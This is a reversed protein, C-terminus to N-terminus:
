LELFDNAIKQYEETRATERAAAKDEETEEEDDDFLGAYKKCDEADDVAVATMKRRIINARTLYVRLSTDGSPCTCIDAVEIKASLVISRAPIAEMINNVTIPEENHLLETNADGRAVAIGDHLLPVFLDKKKNPGWTARKILPVPSEATAPTTTIRVKYTPTDLAVLSGADDGSTAMYNSIKISIHDNEAEMPPVWEKKGFNCKSWAKSNRLEFGLEKPSTKSLRETLENASEHLIDLVEILLDNNEKLLRIKAAYKSASERETQPVAQMIDKEEFSRFRMEPKDMMLEGNKILEPVKEYPVKGRLAFPISARVNGLIQLGTDIEPKKVVRGDALKFVINLYTGGPKNNKLTKGGIKADDYSMFAPGHKKFAAKVEALEVVNTM